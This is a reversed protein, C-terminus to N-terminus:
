AGRLRHVLVNLGDKADDLAHTDSGAVDLLTLVNELIQVTEARESEHMDLQDCLRSVDVRGFLDQQMSLMFDRQERSLTKGDSNM